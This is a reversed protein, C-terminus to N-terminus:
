IYTHLTSEDKKRSLIREKEWGKRGIGELCDGMYM